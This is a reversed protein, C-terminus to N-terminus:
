LTTSRAIYPPVKETSSHRALLLPAIVDRQRASKTWWFRARTLNGQAAAQLGLLNMSDTDGQQASKVVARSSRESVSRTADLAFMQTSYAAVTNGAAAAQQLLRRAKAVAGEALYLEAISLLVDPNGYHEAMDRYHLRASLDDDTFHEGILLVAFAAHDPHGSDVATQYAVRAGGPDGQGELLLGMGIAALPAYASHGSTIAAQYAERASDPKRQREFLMGMMVWASPKHDPHCSDIAHQYADHAGNLDGQEMLRIGVM